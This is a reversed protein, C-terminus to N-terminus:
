LFKILKQINVKSATVISFESILGIALRYIRKSLERHEIMDYSYHNNKRELEKKKGRIRIAKIEQSMASAVM